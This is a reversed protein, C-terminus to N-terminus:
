KMDLLTIIPFPKGSLYELSAGGGTSITFLGELGCKKCANGTDGGALVVKANFDSLFDMLERTGNSFKEYEFYGVPGNWLVFTTEFLKEKFLEITKPGIDYQNDFLGISSVHRIIPESDPDKSVLFDVPLIIKNGYKGLLKNAENMAEDSIKAAGTSYGQAHLFPMAMLGGILIYKSSPALRDIMMIKDEAKAGGLVLIKDQVNIVDNLLDMESKMLFGIGSDVYKAIGYTSAHARHASGFADMIFLDCLSAWYKSLEEDCGSEKNDDLDLVRTNQVLLVDGMNMNRIAEELEPGRPTECFNVDRGLLKTLEPVVYRLDNKIADDNNKVKGLHSLLIVKAGESILYNITKLSAVIRNNDTVKGDSIPVNYDVRVIVKRNVLEFENVLKM